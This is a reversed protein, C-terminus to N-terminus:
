TNTSLHQPRSGRSDLWEERRPECMRRTPCRRVVVAACESCPATTRCVLFVLHFYLFFRLRSDPLTYALAEEERSQVGTHADSQNQHSGIIWSMATSQPLGGTMRRQYIPGLHENVLTAFPKRELRPTEKCHSKHTYIPASRAYTALNSNSHRSSEHPPPAIKWPPM